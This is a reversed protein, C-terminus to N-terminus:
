QQFKQYPDDDDGKNEDTGHTLANFLNTRLLDGGTPIHLLNNLFGTPPAVTPPLSSKYRDFALKTLTDSGAANKMLKSVIFGKPGALAGVKESLSTPDQRGYVTARKDAVDRVTALDGYSNQIPEPDVGTKNRIYDYILDKTTGRTANVRAAEPNSRLVAAKESGPASLMDQLKANSEIRLTDLDGVPMPQMYPSAKARTADYISPTEIQQTLPISDMQAYAVKSADIMDSKLPKLLGQYAEYKRQAGTRAADAVDQVSGIKPNVKNLEPIADSVSSEFDPVAVSPKLAKTMLETPTATPHLVRSVTLAPDSGYKITGKVIGGAIKPVLEAGVINGALETVAGSKDGHLYRDVMGAAMPGVLPVVSAMNHMNAMHGPGNYISNDNPNAAAQAEYQKAIEREHVMPDVIMRNLALKVRGPLVDPVGPLPLSETLSENVDKPDDAFAHYVGSPMGAIQNGVRKLGAWFGTDNPALTGPDQTAQQTPQQAQGGFEAYPDQQTNNNKDAM